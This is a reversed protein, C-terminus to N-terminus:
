FTITPRAVMVFEMVFVNLPLCHIICLHHFLIIVLVFFLLIVITRRMLLVSCIASIIVVFSRIGCVITFVVLSFAGFHDRGIVRLLDSWSESACGLRYGGFRRM